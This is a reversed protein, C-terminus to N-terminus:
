KQLAKKILNKFLVNFGKENNINKLLIDYEKINLPLIINNHNEFAQNYYKVAEKFEKTKVTSIFIIIGYKKNLDNKLTNIHEQIQFYEKQCQYKGKDLLTSEITVVINDFSLHSDAVGSESSKKVNGNSDSRIAINKEYKLYDKNNKYINYFFYLSNYAEFNFWNEFRKTNIENLKSLILEPKSIVIEKLSNNEIDEKTLKISTYLKKSFTKNKIMKEIEFYNNKLFFNIKDISKQERKLTLLGNSFVFCGTHNLWKMMTDAHDFKKDRNNLNILASNIENEEKLNKIINIIKKDSENTLERLLFFLTYEKKNIANLEEVLSYIINLIKDKTLYFLILNSEAEKKIQLETLDKELPILLEFDFDFVIHESDKKSVIPFKCYESIKKKLTKVMNKPESNSNALVVPAMETITIDSKNSSIKYISRLLNLALEPNRIAPNLIKRYNINTDSM